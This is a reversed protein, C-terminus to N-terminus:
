IQLRACYDLLAWPPVTHPTHYPAFSIFSQNFEIEDYLFAGVKGGSQGWHKIPRLAKSHKPETSYAGMGGTNEPKLLRSVHCLTGPPRM